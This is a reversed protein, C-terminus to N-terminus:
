STASDLTKDNREMPMPAITEQHNKWNQPDITKHQEESLAKLFAYKAVSEFRFVSLASHVNERPIM